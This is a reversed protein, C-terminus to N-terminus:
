RSRRNVGSIIVAVNERFNFFQGPKLPANKKYWKAVNPRREDLVSIFATWEVSFGTRVRCCPFVLDILRHRIETPENGEPTEVIKICDTSRKNPM